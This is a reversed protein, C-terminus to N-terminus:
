QHGAAIRRALRDDLRSLGEADFESLHERYYAELEVALMLVEAATAKFGPFQRAYYREYDAALWVWRSAVTRGPQLPNTQRRAVELFLDYFTGENKACLLLERVTADEDGFVYGM